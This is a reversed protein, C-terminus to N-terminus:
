DDSRGHETAKLRARPPRAPARTTDTTAQDIAQGLYAARVAESDALDRAAGHFIMEGFDLCYVETTVAAVLSMDHEVLLMGKTGSGVLDVLLRGFEESEREDLGSSPEDLLLFIPDRALLRALEVLRGRGTPLAEAAMDAVDTLRVMELIEDVRENMRRRFIRGNSRLGLLKLPDDTIAAAEYAFAVNERVTLTGFLEMRQFTRGLGLRARAPVSMGTIDHGSLTVRGSTPTTFGNCVNFMTTKGAGNPGILGTIQGQPARLSINDLAVLGGFEVTVGDIVLGTLDVATRAATDVTM